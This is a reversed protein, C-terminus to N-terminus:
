NENLYLKKQWEITKNLGYDITKFDNKNFESIYRDISMNVVKPSGSLNNKGLIVDKNMIDGVKKALEYISVKSFGGVNYLNQKGYLLINFFMEIADTVYCYTRISSGDDYLEINNNFLSKEIINNIVRSDNIKTGPGYALSLRAIKIDVGSKIFSQCIAEGCRKGEIYSARVHSPTTTGFDTETLGFKDNGSYIESTSLFLFKGDKKLKEILWITSTTNLKITTIENILFKGPQGYGASHIIADFDPLNKFMSEDTIDGKIIVCDEFIKEVNDQQMPMIKVDGELSVVNEKVTPVGEELVEVVANFENVADASVLNVSIPTTLPENIPEADTADTDFV